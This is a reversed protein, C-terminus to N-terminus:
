GGSPATQAVYIPSGILFRDGKRAILKNPGPIDDPFNYDTFVLAAFEINDVLLDGGFIYSRLADFYYEAIHSRVIDERYPIEDVVKTIVQFGDGLAGHYSETIEIRSPDDVPAGDEYRAVRWLTTLANLIGSRNSGPLVANYQEREVNDFNLYRSSGGLLIVDRGEVAVWIAVDKM